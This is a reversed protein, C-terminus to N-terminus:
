YYLSSYVDPDMVDTIQRPWSIALGHETRFVRDIFRDRCDDYRRLLRCRLQSALSTVPLLHAGGAILRLQNTLAAVDDNWCYFAKMIAATREVDLADVRRGGCDDATLRRRRGYYKRNFPSARVQKRHHHRRHRLRHVTGYESLNSVGDVSRSHTMIDPRQRAKGTFNRSGNLATAQEELDDSSRHNPRTQQQKRTDSTLIYHHDTTSNQQQQQSSATDSSTSDVAVAKCLVVTHTSMRQGLDTLYRQIDDAASTSRSLTSRALLAAAESLSLVRCQGRSTRGDSDRVDSGSPSKRDEDEDDVEAKGQDVGGPQAHDLMRGSSDSTLDRVDGSAVPVLQQSIPIGSVSVAFHVLFIVIYKRATHQGDLVDYGSRGRIKM